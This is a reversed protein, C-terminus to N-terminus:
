AAPEVQQGDRVSRAQNLAQWKSEAVGQASGVIWRWRMADDSEIRRLVIHKTTTDM